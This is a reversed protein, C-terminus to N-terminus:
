TIGPYTQPRKEPPKEPTPQITLCMGPLTVKTSFGYPVRCTNDVAALAKLPYAKETIIPSGAETLSLRDNYDLERLNRLGSDAWANWLFQTADGILSKKVSIQIITEDDPDLRAFASDAHNLAVEYGDSELTSSPDSLMPTLGGVDMNKDFYAKVYMSSWEKGPQIATVLYDGRGDKNVDIEVGYTATLKKESESLGALQITFYFYEEDSSISATQIDTDPLYVMEQSTFPRELLERSFNDGSLTRKEEATSKSNIDEITRYPKGPEVPLASVAPIGAMKSTSQVHTLPSFATIALASLVVFSSFVHKRNM